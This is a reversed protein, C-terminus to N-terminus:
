VKVKLNRQSIIKYLDIPCEQVTFLSSGVKLHKYAETHVIKVPSMPTHVQKLAHLSTLFSMNAPLSHYRSGDLRVDQTHSM